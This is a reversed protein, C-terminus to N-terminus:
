LAFWLWTYTGWVKITMGPDLIIHRTDVQIDADNVRLLGPTGSVIYVSVRWPYPNPVAVGDGGQAPTPAIQVGPGGQYGGPLDWQATTNGSVITEAGFLWRLLTAATAASVGLVNETFACAAVRGSAGATGEVLTLGGGGNRRATCGSLMVNQSGVIVFGSGTNGLSTGAASPFPTTGTAIEGGAHCATFAVDRSEESNFGNSGCSYARCGSHSVQECEYHTFGMGDAMGRATCGTYSVGTANNASFGSATQVGSDALADCDTYTTDIGLQTDFHFTEGPPVNGTGRVNKVQVRTLRAGRTRVLTIGNHDGTQNAANGDVTFDRLTINEDGGSLTENYIVSAGDGTSNNYPQSPLLKIVSGGRGRGRLTVGAPVVLGAYYGPFGTVAAMSVSVEGQPLLLDVGFTAATALEAALTARADTGDTAAQSHLTAGALAVYTATALSPSLGQPRIKSM